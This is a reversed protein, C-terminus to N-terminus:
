INFIYTIWEHSKLTDEMGLKIEEEWKIFRGPSSIFIWAIHKDWFLLGYIVHITAEILGTLLLKVVCYSSYSQWHTDVSYSVFM